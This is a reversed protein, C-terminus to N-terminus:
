DIVVTKCQPTGVKVQKLNSKSTMLAITVNDIFVGRSDNM